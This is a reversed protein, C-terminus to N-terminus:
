CNMFNNKNKIKNNMILQILSTSNNEGNKIGFCSIWEKFSVQKDKDVDCQQFFRSTCHEMPVLPVRLPALESVSLYRDSPHQDLQAFQWHVPYIYMNYNKEFDHALLELSHDGAHLRRDSEFIKKVRSRQKATLFGPSTSDNEFLQLLVNKLWDRMRLPFQALETDRCPPIFKCPGTYDLYLKSGRKTGELNCKTAFLACSTDYTKNDTGCVRDFDNVTSPCESTEQCVCGPENNADLKCTKGRKCRFGECPDPQGEPQHVQTGGTLTPKLNPYLEVTARIQVPNIGVLSGRKGMKRRKAKHVTNDSSSNEPEQSDGKSLEQGPQVEERQPSHKKSRKSKKQKRKTEKNLSGHIMKNNKGALLSEDEPIIDQDLSRQIQRSNKDNNGQLRDEDSEETGQINKEYDEAKFATQVDDDDDDDDDDDSPLSTKAAKLRVSELIGGDAATDLDVMTDPDTSGETDDTLLFMQVERDAMKEKNDKSMKEEKKEEVKEKREDTAEKLIMKTGAEKKRDAGVKPSIQVSDPKMKDNEEGAEEEELGRGEMAEEEAETKILDILEEESLLVASDEERKESDDFAGKQDNTEAEVEEQDQSRIEFTDLTPLVQLQNTEELVDDKM